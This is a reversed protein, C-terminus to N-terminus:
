RDDASFPDNTMYGIWHIGTFASDLFTGQFILIKVLQVSAGFNVATNGVETLIGM